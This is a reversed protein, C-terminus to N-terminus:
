DQKTVEREIFKDNAKMKLLKEKSVHINKIYKKRNTLEIDNSIFGYAILMKRIANLIKRERKSRTIINLAEESRIRLYWIENKPKVRRVIGEVKRKNIAEDIEIRDPPLFNPTKIKGM